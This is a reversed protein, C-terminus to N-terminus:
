DNTEGRHDCVDVAHRIQRAHNEASRPTSWVSIAHGERNALPCLLRGWAHASNGTAQYRWGKSEAYKITQEIEKSPHKHRVVAENNNQM